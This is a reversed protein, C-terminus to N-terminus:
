GFEVDVNYDVIPPVGFVQQAASEFPGNLVTPAAQVVTMPGTRGRQAPNSTQGTYRELYLFENLINAYSFNPNNTAAALADTALLTRDLLEDRKGNRGM